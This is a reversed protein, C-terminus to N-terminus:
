SKDCEYNFVGDMGLYSGKGTALDLEFHAVEDEWWIADKDVKMDNWETGDGLEYPDDKDWQGV